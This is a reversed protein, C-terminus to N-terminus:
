AAFLYDSDDVAPQVEDYTGRGDTLAKMLEEDGATVASAAGITTTKVLGSGAALKLRVADTEYDVILEANQGSLGTINVSGFAGILEDVDMLTFETGGALETLDIELKGGGLDAGSRVDVTEGLAGSRFEGITGLKGDTAEFALTGGDALGLISIGGEKGDFGVKAAGGEVELRSGDTVAYTADDVGLLTQGGSATLNADAKFVGTNAFRGGTVDIDLLDAGRAGETWFQGAGNIDLTAGKATETGGAVTLKGHELQLGGNQGFELQGITTTGGYVVKNGGLDVGDGAVFGPLDDSSWNLRNDWRVGDGLDNPIFRLLGAETRIDPAIGFGLQFFRNILDADVVNDFAGNSQARLYDALDQITADPKGLLQATFLQITTQNLVTPDLGEVNRDANTAYGWDFFSDHVSGDGAVWNWVVTDNYYVDNKITMASNSQTKWTLESPNNPDALHAVINDVLSVLHGQTDIGISLFGTGEVTTRHGASTTVNDTFLTYNGTFTGDANADGFGINNGVNNNVFINDEVFGGARFQVGTTAGDMIISDRLTVDSNDKQIYMGHSFYSPPHPDDASLNYDYGEAWGIQDFFNKEFLIGNSKGIFVGSTRNAGADWTDGTNAPDDRYIDYFASERVTIGSSDQVVLGTGTFTVNDFLINSSELITYGGSFHIDQFVINHGGGAMMIQNSTIEPSTGSGWAGVYIPHLESAGTTGGDTEWDYKYGRELLLWNSSNSDRDSVTRWLLEGAEQDIAMGESGGYEPNRALWDGTIQSVDLKELAAIDARSLAADSGSVFVKRHNDGHEVVIRGEADTELMYHAESTAWGGTLPGTAVDIDAAHLTKTGDTHTVEYTFGLDGAYDKDLTMVLALTNDPNVSVHGHEPGNLIRVSAINEADPALTTVRGSVVEVPASTLPTEDVDGGSTGTGGTQPPPEPNPNVPGTPTDTGSDPNDVQNDDPTEVPSGVVADDPKKGGPGKGQNKGITVEGDDDSGSKDDTKRDRGGGLAGAMGGFTMLGFLLAIPNV